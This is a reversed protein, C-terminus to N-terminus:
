AKAKTTNALPAASENDADMSDMSKMLTAIDDPLDGDIVTAKQSTYSKGFSEKYAAQFQALEAQMTTTLMHEAQYRAVAGRFNNEALENGPTYEGRYREAFYKAKSERDKQRPLWYEFHGILRELLIRRHFEMTDVHRWGDTKGSLNDEHFYVETSHTFTNCIDRAINPADYAALQESLIRIQNELAAKDEQLSKVTDTSKTNTM